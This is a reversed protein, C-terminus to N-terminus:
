QAIDSFDRATLEAALLPWPMRPLIKQFADPPTVSLAELLSHVGEKPSMKTVTGDANHTEGWTQRQTKEDGRAYALVKERAAALIAPTLPVRNDHDPHAFDKKRTLYALLCTCAIRLNQFM